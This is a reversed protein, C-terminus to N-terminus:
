YRKVCVFLSSSLLPKPLGIALEGTRALKFHRM